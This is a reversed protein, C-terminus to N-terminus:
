LSAEIAQASWVFNLEGVAACFGDLVEFTVAFKGVARLEFKRGIDEGVEVHSVTVSKM